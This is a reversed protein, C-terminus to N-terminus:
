KKNKKFKGYEDSLYFISSGYLSCITTTIFAYSLDGIYNVSPIVKFGFLLLILIFYIIFNIKFYKIFLEM